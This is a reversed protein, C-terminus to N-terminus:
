ETTDRLHSLSNHSNEPLRGTLSQFIFLFTLPDSFSIRKLLSGKMRSESGSDIVVGAITTGHGGIWKTASHVVIDAGHDIPRIVYGGCGFTNDVVLPIKNDHAVKAIAKL